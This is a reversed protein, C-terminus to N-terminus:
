WMESTPKVPRTENDPLFAVSIWVEFKQLRSDLVYKININSCAYIQDRWLFLLFEAMRSGICSSCISCKSNCQWGEGEWEMLPYNKVFKLAENSLIKTWWISYEVNLVNEASRCVRCYLNQILHSVLTVYSDVTANRGCKISNFEVRCFHSTHVPGLSSGM